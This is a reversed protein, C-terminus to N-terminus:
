KAEEERLPFIRLHTRFLRDFHGRHSEVRIGRTTVQENIGAKVIKKRGQRM